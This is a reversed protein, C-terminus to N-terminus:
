ICFFFVSIKKQCEILYVLFVMNYTDLNCILMCYDITHFFYLRVLLFLSLCCFESDRCLSVIHKLVNEFFDM